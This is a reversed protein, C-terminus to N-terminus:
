DDSSLLHCCSRSSLCSCRLSGDSSFLHCCAEVLPLPAADSAEVADSGEEEEDVALQAICVEEEVELIAVEKEAQCCHVVDVQMMDSLKRMKDDNPEVVWLGVDEDQIPLLWEPVVLNRDVIAVVTDVEAKADGDQVREDVAGSVDVDADVVELEVDVDLVAVEVYVDLVAVEVYVDLEMVAVRGDVDLDVVADEVDVNVDLVAVRADVDLDVNDVEVEVDVDVGEDAADAYADVVTKEVDVEQVEVEDEVDVVVSNEM